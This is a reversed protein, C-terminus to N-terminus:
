LSFVKACDGCIEILAESSTAIFFQSCTEKLVKYLKFAAEPSLMALSDDFIMPLHTKKMLEALSLRFALLGMETIVGGGAAILPLVSNRDCFCLEFNEDFLFREGEGLVFSIKQNISETLTEKLAKEFRDKAATALTLNLDLVEFEKEEECIKEKLVDLKTRIEECSVALNDQAEQLRASLTAKKKFISDNQASLFNLEKQLATFEPSVALTERKVDTSLLANYESKEEELDSQLDYLADNAEIIQDCIAILEGDEEKYGLASIRRRIAETVDEKERAKIKCNEEASIVKDRYVQTTKDHACLTEYFENFKALSDKGNEALIRRISNTCVTSVSLSAVGCLATTIGVAICTIFDFQMFNLLFYLCAGLGMLAIGAIQLILKWLRFRSIRKKEAAYHEVTQKGTFLRNHYSLTEEASTLAARADSLATVSLSLNGYDEKMEELEDKSLLGIKHTVDYTALRLQKEKAIISKHKEQANEKNRSIQLDDSFRAMDAKLLVCRKDNEDLKQAIEALSATYEQARSEWEPRKAIKEELDAKEKYLRDLTGNKEKNKYFSAKEQAVILDRYINETDKHFSSIQNLFSFKPKFFPTEYRAQKFYNILDFSDQDMGTLFEGPTKDMAIAGEETGQTFVLEEKGQTVSRECLFTKDGCSFLIRGKADEANDRALAVSDAGYLIFQIFECLSTKGSRFSGFFLNGEKAPEIVLDRIKKFQEIEIREISLNTQEM